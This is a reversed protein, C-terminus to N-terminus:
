IDMQPCHWVAAKGPTLGSSLLNVVAKHPQHILGVQFFDIKQQDGPIKKVPLGECSLKLYHSLKQTGQSFSLHDEDGSVAIIEPLVAAVPGETKRFIHMEEIPNLILLNNKWLKLGHNVAQAIGSFLLLLREILAEAGLFLPNKRNKQDMGPLLPM